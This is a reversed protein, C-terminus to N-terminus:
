QKPKEAPVFVPPPKPEDDEPRFVKRKGRELWWTQQWGTVDSIAEGRKNRAPEYRFRQEILRCTTADLEGNGSSKVVKCGSARGDSSVTFYATVEGGEKARAAAKPYDKNTISGSIKRARSAIGGGPDGGNGGGGAGNGVNGSGTGSGTGGAGSGPGENKASGSKDSKGKDAIEATIKRSKIIIKTKAAEVPARMQQRNAASAVGEQKAAKEKELPRPPPPPDIAKDTAVNFTKLTTIAVDANKVDLGRLLLFGVLFHVILVGIVAKMRDEQRYEAGFQM